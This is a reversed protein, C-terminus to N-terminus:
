RGVITTSLLSATPTPAPMTTPTAVGTGGGSQVGTVIHTHTTYATYFALLFAYLQTGLVFPETSGTGLTLAAFDLSMSGSSTLQMLGTSSLLLDTGATFHTLGASSTTLDTGAVFRMAMGADLTIGALGDVKFDEVCSFDITGAATASLNRGVNTSHDSTTNWTYDFSASLFSNGILFNVDELISLTCTSLLDDIELMNGLATSLKISGDFSVPTASDNLLLRYGGSTTEIVGGANMEIAHQYRTWVTRDPAGVSGDVGTKYSHLKLGGIGLVGERDSYSQMGWEWIPKEPEGDLFRVWVKDGVEPLHSFGGSRASGGAPMGAPLAWPLDNTAVFGSGGGTSGYVHPVRVKVRGLKLPDKNNEVLGGYTYQLTM